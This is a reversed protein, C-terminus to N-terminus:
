RPRRLIEKLDRPVVIEGNKRTCIAIIYGADRLQEGHEALFMKWKLKALATWVGKCEVITQTWDPFLIIFDAYYTAVHIGNSHLEFPIQREYAAVLGARMRYGLEIAYEMELISDYTVGNHTRKEKPGVGYKNRKKGEELGFAKLEEPSLRAYAM